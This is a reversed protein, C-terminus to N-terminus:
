QIREETHIVIVDKTIRFKKQGGGILGSRLKGSRKKGGEAAGKGPAEVRRVSEGTAKMPGTMMLSNNIDKEKATASRDAEQASARLSGTLAYADSMKRMSEKKAKGSLEYYTERIKLKFFLVVATVLSIASLAYCTYSIGRLVTM